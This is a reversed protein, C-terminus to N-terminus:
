KEWKGMFVRKMAGVTDSRKRNLEKCLDEQNLHWWREKYEPKVNMKQCVYQSVSDAEPCWMVQSKNTFFKWYPFFDKRIFKQLEHLKGKEAEGSEVSVYWSADAGGVNTTLAPITAELPSVTRQAVTKAPVGNMQFFQPVGATTTTIPPTTIKRSGVRAEQEKQKATRSDAEQNVEDFKSGLVRRTTKTKAGGVGSNPSKRKAARHSAKGPM